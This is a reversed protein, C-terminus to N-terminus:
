LSYVTWTLDECGGVRGVQGQVVLPPGSIDVVQPGPVVPEAVGEVRRVSLVDAGASQQAEVESM